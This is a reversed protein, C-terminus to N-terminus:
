KEDSNRSCYRFINKRKRGCVIKKIEVMIIVFWLSDELIIYSMTFHIITRIVTVFGGLYDVVWYFHIITHTVWITAQQSSPQYCSVDWWDNSALRSLIGISVGIVYPSIFSVGHINSTTSVGCNWLSRSTLCSPDTCYTKGPATWVRNSCQKPLSLSTTTLPLLKHIFHVFSCSIGLFLGCLKRDRAVVYEPTPTNAFENIELNWRSWFSSLIVSLSTLHTV